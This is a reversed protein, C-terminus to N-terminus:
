LTFKRRFGSQPCLEAFTACELWLCIMQLLGVSRTPQPTKTNSRLVHGATAAAVGFGKDWPQAPQKEENEQQGDGKTKKTHEGEPSPKFSDRRFGGGRSRHWRGWDSRAVRWERRMM